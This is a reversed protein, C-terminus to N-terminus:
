RRRCAAWAFLGGITVGAAFAIGLAEFPRQKVTHRAEEIADEAAYRGRKMTQMASRVGDEVAETVIVKIRSVERLADEVMAPKEVVNAPM